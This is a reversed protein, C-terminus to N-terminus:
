VLNSSIGSIRNNHARKPSSSPSLSRVSDDDNGMTQKSMAKYLETFRTNPDNVLHTLTGLSDRQPTTPTDGGESGAQKVRRRVTQEPSPSKPSHLRPPTSFGAQVREPSVPRQTQALTARAPSAPRVRTLSLSATSTHLDSRNSGSDYLSFTSSSGRHELHVFDRPASITSSNLRELPRSSRRGSSTFTMRRSANKQVKPAATPATRAHDLSFLPEDPLPWVQVLHTSESPTVCFILEERNCMVLNPFHMVQVFAGTVVHIVEIHNDGICFLLQDRVVFMSADNRWKIYPKQRAPYGIETVFVGVKNFCLLLERVASGIPTIDLVTIPQLGHRSANVPLAFEITEFGPAILTQPRLKECDYLTFTSEYAVGLYGDIFKLLTAPAPLIVERATDPQGTPEVPIVLVSKKILVALIAQGKLVGTAVLSCGKTEPIKVGDDGRRISAKLDFLRVQPTKGYVVVILNQEPLASIFSIHTLKKADAFPVFDRTKLKLLTLGNVGGFILNHSDIAAACKAHKIEPYETSAAVLSSCVVDAPTQQKRVAHLYRRFKALWDTQAKVEQAMFLLTYKAGTGHETVTMKFIRPVDKASAHIVDASTVADVEVRNRLLDIMVAPHAKALAHGPDLPVLAAVSEARQLRSNLEHVRLVGKDIRCYAEMWGKRVGAPKPIFLKGEVLPLEQHLEAASSVSDSLSNGLRSVNGGRISDTSPSYESAGSDLIVSNPHSTKSRAQIESRLGEREELALNLETKLADNEQRIAKLESMEAEYKARFAHLDAIAQNKAQAEQDRELQLQRLELREVKQNRRQQWQYKDLFTKPSLKLERLTALESEVSAKLREVEAQAERYEEVQRALDALSEELDYNTSSSSSRLQEIEQQQTETVATLRDVEAQLAAIDEDKTTMDGRLSDTLSELERLTTRYNDVERVAKDLDRQLESNSLNAAQEANMELEKIQNQLASLQSASSSEQTQLEEELGVIQQQLKENLLVLRDKEQQHEERAQTLAAELNSADQRRVVAQATVMEQELAEMAAQHAASQQQLKEESVLARKEAELLKKELDGVLRSSSSSQTGAQNLKATLEKVSRQEIALLSKTNDCSDQLEAVNRKLQRVLTETQALKDELDLVEQQKQSSSKQLQQNKITLDELQEQMRALENETRRLRLSASSTDKVASANLQELEVARQETVQLKGQAAAANREAEDARSEAGALRQRLAELEKELRMNKMSMESCKRKLDSLDQQNAMMDVSSRFHVSKPRQGRRISGDEKSSLAGLKGQDKGNGDRLALQRELELIRLELRQNASVLVSNNRQLKRAPSSAEVLDSSSRRLEVPKPGRASFSFGVFPLHVGVFARAAEPRKAAPAMDEVPDFNSTDTASTVTPTFPAKEEHITDWSVGTFFSHKKFDDIGHRGLRKSADCLLRRILDEAESSISWGEESPFELTSAHDMIRGYTGVLTESYFPTDGCLMEYMCVGLSWWDVERGYKGKGEMSMLIEPSIYDPTGVAVQSDVLGDEGLKVCSGFDALRIHGDKSLLMNDPKIDRHVYGLRHLSDIALVMEALYFRVMAEDMHDEFKSLLTLVDGGSYYDMVLYLNDDDQFAFHLETIWKRDGFVLVDREEMYCATEKRKLMEWKNLIKMAYIKKSVKHRVVHVEGFAGRGIIKLTDFDSRKVVVQQISKVKEEYQTVFEQITKEKRLHPAKLESHVAIFTDFLLEYPLLEQVKAQVPDDLAKRRMSQLANPPTDM